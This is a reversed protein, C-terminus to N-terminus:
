SPDVELQLFCRGTPTNTKDLEALIYGKPPVVFEFDDGGGFTFKLDLTTSELLDCSVSYLGESSDLIGNLLKVISTFASSPCLISSSGTDIIASIPHNVTMFSTGGIKVDKIAIDWFTPTKGVGNEPVLPYYHIPPVYRSDDIYGFSIEGGLDQNSVTPSLPNMWFSFLNLPIVGQAFMNQLPLVIPDANQPDNARNTTGGVKFRGLGMIGDFNQDDFFNALYFAAGFHQHKITIGGITFTEYGDSFNGSGTGYQITFPSHGQLYTSSDSGDYLNKGKCGPSTCAASPVWLMDSGTDFLIKFEQPPDGLSIKGFFSHDRQNYFTEDGKHLKGHIASNVNPSASGRRELPIRMGETAHLAAAALISVITIATSSPRVM